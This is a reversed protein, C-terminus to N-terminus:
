WVGWMSPPEARATQQLIPITAADISVNRARSLGAFIASMVIFWLAVQLIEAWYLRGNM